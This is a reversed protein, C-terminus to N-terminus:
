WRRVECQETRVAYELRRATGKARGVARIRARSYSVLMKDLATPSGAGSLEPLRERRTDNRTDNRQFFEFVFAVLSFRVFSYSLALESVDHRNHRFHGHENPKRSILQFFGQRGALDVECSWAGERCHTALEM